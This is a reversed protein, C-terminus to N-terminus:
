YEFQNNKHSHSILQRTQSLSTNGQCMQYLKLKLSSIMIKSSIQCIQYQIMKLSPFIILRSLLNFNKPIIESQNQQQLGRQTM